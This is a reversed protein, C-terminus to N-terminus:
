LWSKKEGRTVHLIEDARIRTTLRWLSRWLWTQGLRICGRPIHYQQNSIQLPVYYSVWHESCLTREKFHFNFRVFRGRLQDLSGNQYLVYRLMAYFTLRITRENLNFSPRVAQMACILIHAKPLLILGPHIVNLQWPFTVVIPLYQSEQLHAKKNM